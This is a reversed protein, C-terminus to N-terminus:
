EKLFNDLVNSNGHLFINQGKKVAESLEVANKIKEKSVTFFTNNAGFFLGARTAFVCITFLSAYDHGLTHFLIFDSLEHNLSSLIFTAKSKKLNALGQM